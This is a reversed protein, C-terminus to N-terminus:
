EFFLGYENQTRVRIQYNNKLEFNFEEATMLFMYYITFKNNDSSGKGQVFEYFHFNGANSDQTKFSGVITGAPKNEDVENNSLLLGTIPLPVVGINLIFM